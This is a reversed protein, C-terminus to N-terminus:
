PPAILIAPPPQKFHIRSEDVDHFDRRHRDTPRRGTNSRPPRLRLPASPIIAVAIDPPPPVALHVSPHPGAHFLSKIITPAANHQLNVEDM